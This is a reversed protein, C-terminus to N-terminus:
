DYDLGKQVSYKESIVQGGTDGDTKPDFLTYDRLYQTVAKAWSSSAGWSSIRGAPAPSDSPYIKAATWKTSELPPLKFTRQVLFSDSQPKLSQSRFAYVFSGPNHNPDCYSYKGASWNKYLFEKVTRRSTSRTNITITANEPNGLGEAKTKLVVWSLDSHNDFADDCHHWFSLDLDLTGGAPITTNFRRFCDRIKTLPKVSNDVGACPIFLYEDNSETEADGNYEDPKCWYVYTGSGEYYADEKTASLTVTTAGKYSHKVGDDTTYSGSSKGGTPTSTVGTVVSQKDVCLTRGDIVETTGHGPVIPIMNNALCGSSNVGTNVVYTTRYANKSVEGYRQNVVGAILATVKKFVSGDTFRLNVDIRDNYRAGIFTTAFTNVSRNSKPNGSSGKSACYHEKQVLGLYSDIISPYCSVIIGSAKGGSVSPNKVHHYFYGPVNVRYIANTIRVARTMDPMYGGENVTIIESLPNDDIIKDIEDFAADESAAQKETVALIKLPFEKSAM